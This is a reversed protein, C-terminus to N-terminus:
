PERVILMLQWGGAISVDSARDCNAHVRFQLGSAITDGCAVGSDDHGQLQWGDDM